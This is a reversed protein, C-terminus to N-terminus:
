LTRPRSFLLRTWSHTPNMDSDHKRDQFLFHISLALPMKHTVEGSKGEKRLGWVRLLDCEKGKEM